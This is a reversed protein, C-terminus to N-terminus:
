HPTHCHTLVSHQIHCHTLVSHQIHCHTLVSHPTHCHTLVSHQTTCHTLVSHPTHCHTLVSHPHPALLCDSLIEMELFLPGGKHSIHNLLTWKSMGMKKSDCGFNAQPGM